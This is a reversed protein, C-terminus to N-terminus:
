NVEIVIGNEDIRYYSYLAIYEDEYLYDNLTKIEKEDFESEEDYVIRDVISRINLVKLSNSPITIIQCNPDSDCFEEAVHISSTFSLGIHDLQISNNEIYGGRYLTPHISTSCKDLIRNDIKDLSSYDCKSWNELAKLLM